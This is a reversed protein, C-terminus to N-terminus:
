NESKDKYELLANALSAILDGQKHEYALLRKSMEKFQSDFDRRLAGSSEGQDSKIQEVQSVLGQFRKEYAAELEKLLAKNEKRLAGVEKELAEIQKQFKDLHEGMLINRIVQVDSSLNAEPKPKEIM